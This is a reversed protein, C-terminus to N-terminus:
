GVFFVSGFFFQDEFMDDLEFFLIMLVDVLFSIQEEVGFILAIDILEEAGGDSGGFQAEEFEVVVFLAGLSEAFEDLILFEVRWILKGPADGTWGVHCAPM